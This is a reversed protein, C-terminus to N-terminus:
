SSHFNSLILKGGTESPANVKIKYSITKGAGVFEYVAYQETKLETETKTLWTVDLVIDKFNALTASNSITGELVTQGILNVRWTGQNKLYESPNQREKSLLEQRLEEPTKERSTDSYYSNGNGRNSSNQNAIILIAAIILLVIAVIWKVPSKKKTDPTPQHTLPQQNTPQQYAQPPTNSFFKSAASKFRDETIHSPSKEYDYVLEEVIEIRGNSLKVSYNFNSNMMSRDYSGISHNYQRLRDLLPM